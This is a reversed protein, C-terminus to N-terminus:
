MSLNLFTLRLFKRPYRLSRNKPNSHLEGDVRKNDINTEEKRTASKVSHRKNKHRASMAGRWKKDIDFYQM